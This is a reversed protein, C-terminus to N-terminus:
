RREVLWFILLLLVSLVAAMLIVAAIGEVIERTTFADTV